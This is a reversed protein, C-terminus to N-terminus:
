MMRASKVLNGKWVGILTFTWSVLVEVVIVLLHLKLWVGSVLQLLNPMWSFSGTLNVMVYFLLLLAAFAFSVVTMITAPLWWFSVRGSEMAKQCALRNQLRIKMDQPATEETYISQLMQDMADPTQRDYGKCKSKGTQQNKM